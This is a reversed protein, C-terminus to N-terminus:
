LGHPPGPQQAKANPQDSPTGLGGSVSQAPFGSESIAHRLSTVDDLVRHGTLPCHDPKICLLGATLQRDHIQVDVGSARHHAFVEV